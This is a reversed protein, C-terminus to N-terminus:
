YKVEGVNEGVHWRSSIKKCKAQKNQTYILGLALEELILLGFSIISSMKTSTAKEHFNLGSFAAAM